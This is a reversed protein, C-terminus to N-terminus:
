RSEINILVSSTVAVIRAGGGGNMKAKVRNQSWLQVRLPVDELRTQVVGNSTRLELDAKLDAPLTAHISGNTTRLVINGDEPPTADVRIQGNSTTAEISGQADQVQISGNSATLNRNARVAKVFIAAKSAM